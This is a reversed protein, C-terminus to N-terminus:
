SRGALLAAPTGRAARWASVLAGALAALALVAGYRLVAGPDWAPLAPILARAADWAMMGVWLGFAVGATGVLAAGDLVRLLVDRRPAGLARRLGLETLRATVWMWMVAFTGVTAVALMTWGAADFMAGFWRLPAAEARLLAAENVRTVGALHTGLARRAAAGVGPGGAPHRVLLEVTPAPYQLVSLYVAEPPELGGGFAASRRDGVVGIVTVLSDSGRGVLIKRGVAGAAEFHRRALSLSVVAVPRAGWADAATFERGAVLPLGLVRFTDPSALYHAALFSHWPLPLGGWFCAGCDTVTIDVPGLGVATGPAGLSARAGEADLGRLLAAYAAARGAPAAGRTEITYVQGPAGSAAAGRVGRALLSAGALVTLCLGLQLAPVVLVLPTAEAVALGSRRRAGALPLLAGLGIGAVAALSAAVAPLPAPSAGGPWAGLALRAAGLGLAGGIALAVATTFAGELLAAGLLHLRSAGVARRVTIEAARASARATSISLTTLWTVALVGLATGLLLRSLGALAVRRLVDPSRVLTSWVLGLDLGPAHPLTLRPDPGAPVALAFAPLIVAVAAAGAAALLVATGWYARLTDLAPGAARGPRM